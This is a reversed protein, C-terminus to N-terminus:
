LLPDLFIDRYLIESFLNARNPSAYQVTGVDIKKLSKRKVKISGIFKKIMSMTNEKIKLARNM